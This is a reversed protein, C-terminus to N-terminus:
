CRIWTEGVPYAITLWVRLSLAAPSYPPQHGTQEAALVARRLHGVVEAANPEVAEDHSHRPGVGVVERWFTLADGDEGGLEAVTKQSREENGATRRCRLLEASGERHDVSGDVM